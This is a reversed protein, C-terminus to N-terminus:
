KCESNVNKNLHIMDYLEGEADPRQTEMTVDTQPNPDQQQKKYRSVLKYSNLQYYFNKFQPKLQIHTNQIHKTWLSKTELWISYPRMATEIQLFIM